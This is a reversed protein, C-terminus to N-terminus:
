VPTTDNPALLKARAILEIKNFKDIVTGIEGIQLDSNQKVSVRCLARGIELLQEIIQELVIERPTRM